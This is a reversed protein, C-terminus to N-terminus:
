LRGTEYVGPYGGQSQSYSTSWTEHKKNTLPVSMTEARPAYWITSLAGMANEGHSRNSILPLITPILEAFANEEGPAITRALSELAKLGSQTNGEDNGALCLKVTELTRLVPSSSSNRVEESLKLSREALLDLVGSKIQTAILSNAPGLKRVSSVREDEVRTLLTTVCSVFEDAPIINLVSNLCIRATRDIEPAQKENSHANAVASIQILLPLIDSARGEAPLKIRRLAYNVFLLLAHSRRKAIVFSSGDEDNRRSLLLDIHLGSFTGCVM